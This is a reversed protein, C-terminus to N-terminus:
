QIFRDSHWHCLSESVSDTLRMSTDATFRNSGTTRVAQCESLTGRLLSVTFHIVGYPPCHSTCLYGIHLRYSQLSLLHDFPALNIGLSLPLGSTQSMVTGSAHATFYRCSWRQLVLSSCVVLCSCLVDFYLLSDFMWMKKGTWKSM